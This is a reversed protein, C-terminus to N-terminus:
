GDTGHIFKFKSFWRWWIGELILVTFLNYSFNRSYALLSVSLTTFDCCVKAIESTDTCSDISRLSMKLNKRQTYIVAGIPRFSYQVLVIMYNTSFFTM